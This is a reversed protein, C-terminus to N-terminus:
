PQMGKKLEALAAQERALIRVLSELWKHHYAQNRAVNHTFELFEIEEEVERIQEERALTFDYAAQWAAPRNDAHFRYVKAGELWIDVGVLGRQIIPEHAKEWREKCYKEQENTRAENM